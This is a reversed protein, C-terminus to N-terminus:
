IDQGVKKEKYVKLIKNVIFNIPKVVNTHESKKYYM